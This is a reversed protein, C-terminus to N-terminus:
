PQRPRDQYRSSGASRCLIRAGRRCERHRRVPNGSRWARSCEEGGTVAELVDPAGVAGDVASALFGDGLVTPVNGQEGHEEGVGRRVAGVVVANAVQEGNVVEDLDVGTVGHDPVNGRVDVDGGALGSGGLAQEAQEWWVLAGPEVGEPLFEIRLLRALGPEGAREVGQM